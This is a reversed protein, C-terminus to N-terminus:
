TRDQTGPFRDRIAFLKYKQKSDHDRILLMGAFLSVGVSTALQMFLLGVQQSTMKIKANKPVMSSQWHEILLRQFEDRSAAIRDIEGQKGHFVQAFIQL